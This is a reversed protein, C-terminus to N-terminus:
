PPTSGLRGARLLLHGRLTINQGREGAVLEEVGEVAASDLDGVAPGLVAEDVGEASRVPGAQGLDELDQGSLAEFRQAPGEVQVVGAALLGREDLAQGASTRPMGLLRGAGAGTSFLTACPVVMGPAGLLSSLVFSSSFRRQAAASASRLLMSAASYLCTTRPRIKRLYMESAKSALCASSSAAALRLAGVGLVGVLVAGGADEPHRLLRAPLVQLALAGCGVMPVSTSSAIAAM